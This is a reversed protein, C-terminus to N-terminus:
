LEAVHLYEPVQVPWGLQEDIDKALSRAAEEEGHTLFIDRPAARFAGLWRLLDDRDGHASFGNLHEVRARVRYQRGHIRVKEHGELIQRGLTGAAQYGVFLVVSREDGLYQRLHHKIRGGTCMGSSALVMKPGKVSNISRSDKARRVMYLGPFRLPPEGSAFLEQTEEDLYSRHKRFVETVDVAMPSDLFIPLEPIRDEHVLRGIHYILEQAREVAFTPIVVSGGSEATDRIIKGLREAPDGHKKHSRNGYTSEMVVHDAVELLTPDGILPKHWQGLDGSFVLRRSEGHERAEFEVVASGLIHGAEHFMVSLDGGKAIPVPEGYGVGEILKRTSRDLTECLGPSLCAKALAGTDSARYARLNPAM